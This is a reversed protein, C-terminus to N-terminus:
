KKDAAPKGSKVNVLKLKFILTKMPEINSFGNTGYALEYPVYIEWESGVSMLKLAETWGPIVRTVPFTTVKEGEHKATADFVEGNIFHGEYVVDVTDSDTPKVGTGETLVKYQLGSKTTKVGEKKANAALFKDGEEKNKGFRQKIQEEQYKQMKQMYNAYAEEQTKTANGKIGDVIGALINSVRISKTSDDGYVQQGIGKAFEQIQQGVQIGALYASKKKDPKNLAGEKMGKIFEEIYTTDVGYRMAMEQKVGDASLIGCDYALTDAEEKLDPKVESSSCSAFAVAAVAVAWICLKKM